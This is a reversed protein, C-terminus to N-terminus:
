KRYRGAVEYIALIHEPDVNAQINHVQNFVYGGGPAFTEILQAIEDKFEQITGNVCTEQMNAGGGWFVIDSGYEKKLKAPEMGHASIQVPNLVQVGADILDPILNFIAGCSHLFVKVNPFNDQVYRYIRKHYPKIMERYMEPSIQLAVQTGLDDGMQILDIYPAVRPLLRSLEDLYNETLRNFYHHMLEKDAAINCYFNEYGFDLQGAEFINGGYALLVAKDTTEFLEKSEAEMFAIEEESMNALPIADIDATDECDEYPHLVQDFYLGGVPMRAFVRGDDLVIEREGKVNTHPSFAEPVLVETGDMLTQPKWGGLRVGFAPYLRHAQVVDGNFKDVIDMDPEALQQFIDYVRPKRDNIGLHKLLRAYPVAHIGTSRMAGFDIALMDPEKHNITARIRERSTM